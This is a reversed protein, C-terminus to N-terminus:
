RHLIPLYQNQIQLIILAVATSFANGPGVTCPWSGDSEQSSLLENSIRSWYWDWTRSDKDGAFFFVQAAYYHGYWYFYHFQYRASLNIMEDKLYAIGVDILPSEYIGSHNLTAIGAATLAFTTRNGRDDAKYRFGGYDSSRPDKEASLEVYAFARDITARPVRIGVNRAARLAMIQCVTISMDATEAFPQYRWSGQRNQSKVILDVALQLKEKLDSRYTMGYIEALLLTAFAHSYMRTDNASIFGLNPDVSALVSDLGREVVESYPGRGSVHGGSLFAMLCLATVGVHPVSEATVIYGSGRKYGVDEAWSGDPLQARRLFQLGREIARVRDESTPPAPEANEVSRRSTTSDGDDTASKWGAGLLLSFCLFSTLLLAM